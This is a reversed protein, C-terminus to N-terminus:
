CRLTPLQASEPTETLGDGMISTDWSRGQDLPTPDV